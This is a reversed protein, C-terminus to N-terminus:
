ATCGPGMRRPLRTSSRSAHMCRPVGTCPASVASGGSVRVTRLVFRSRVSAAVRGAVQLVQWRAM